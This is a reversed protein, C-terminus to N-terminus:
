EFGPAPAEGDEATGARRFRWRPNGQSRHARERNSGKGGKSESESIHERESRGLLWLRPLHPVPLDELVVPPLRRKTSDGPRVLCLRIVGSGRVIVVKQGAPSTPPDCAISATGSSATGSIHAQVASKTAHARRLLSQLPVLEFDGNKRGVIKGTGLM